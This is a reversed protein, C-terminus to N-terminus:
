GERSRVTWLADSSEALTELGMVRKLHLKNGELVLKPVKDVQRIELLQARLTSLVRSNRRRLVPVTVNTKSRVGCNGM